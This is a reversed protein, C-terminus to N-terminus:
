TMVTTQRLTWHSKTTCEDQIQSEKNDTIPHHRWDNYPLSSLPYSVFQYVFQHRNKRPTAKGRWSSHGCKCSLPLYRQHQQKALPLFPTPPTLLEKVQNNRSCCRLGNGQWNGGGGCESDEPKFCRWPGEWREHHDRGWMNWVSSENKWSWWRKQKWWNRVIETGSLNGRRTQWFM